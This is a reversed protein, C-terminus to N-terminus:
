AATNIANVVETATVQYANAGSRTVTYIKIIGNFQAVYLRGDPGFQLTTPTVSSAGQLSSKGFGIAPPPDCATLLGGLTSALVCLPVANRLVHRYRAPGGGSIERSSQIRGGRRAHQRIWTHGLDM